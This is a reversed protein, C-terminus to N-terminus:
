YCLVRNKQNEVITGKSTFGGSLIRNIHLTRLEGNKSRFVGCTFEKEDAPLYEQFIYHQSNFLEKARLFDRIIELGKSGQGSRPKYICPLSVPLEDEAKLTWPYNINNDKLFNATLLKDLSINVTFPDALLVKCGLLREVPEKHNTLQNIEAESSPIFLDIGLKKITFILVKLYDGDEARPIKIMKDFVCVGWSDDNVDCGYVHKFRESKLIRGIGIGIDGAAGSVLISKFKTTVNQM